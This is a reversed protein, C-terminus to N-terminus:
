KFFTRADLRAFGVTSQVLILVALTIAATVLIVRTSPVPSTRWSPARFQPREGRPEREGSLHRWVRFRNASQEQLTPM